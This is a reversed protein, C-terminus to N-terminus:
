ESRSRRANDIGSHKWLCLPRREKRREAADEIQQREQRAKRNANTSEVVKITAAPPKQDRKDRQDARDHQDDHEALVACWAVVPEPGISQLFDTQASRRAPAPGTSHALLSSLQIIRRM